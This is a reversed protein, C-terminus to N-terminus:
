GQVKMAVVPHLYPLLHPVMHTMYFPVFGDVPEVVVDYVTYKKARHSSLVVRDGVNAPQMDRYVSVTREDYGETCADVVATCRDGFVARGIALRSEIAFAKAYIHALPWIMRKVADIHALWHLINAIHGISVRSPAWRDTVRQVHLPANTLHTTYIDIVCKIFNDNIRHHSLGDGLVAANSIVAYHRGDTGSYATEVTGEEALTMFRDGWEEMDSVGNAEVIANVLARPQVRMEEQCAARHAAFMDCTRAYVREMASAVESVTMAYGIRMDHQAHINWGAKPPAKEAAFADEVDLILVGQETEILKTLVPNSPRVDVAMVVGGAIDDEHDAYIHNRSCLRGGDVLDDAVMRSFKPEPTLNLVYIVHHEGVTICSICDSMPKDVFLGTMDWQMMNLMFKLCRDTIFKSAHWRRACVKMDATLIAIYTKDEPIYHAM